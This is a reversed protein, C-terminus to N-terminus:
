IPTKFGLARVVCWGARAEFIQFGGGIAAGVALYWVWTPELIGSLKLAVLVLAVLLTIMGGILRVSKGRADINCQM